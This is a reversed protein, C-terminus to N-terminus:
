PNPAYTEGVFVVGMLLHITYLWKGITHFLIHLPIESHLVLLQEGTEFIALPLASENRLTYKISAGACNYIEPELFGFATQTIEDQANEGVGCSSLVNLIRVPKSPYFVSSKIFVAFLDSCLLLQLTTADRSQYLTLSNNTYM